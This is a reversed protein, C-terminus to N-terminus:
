WCEAPGRRRRLRLITPLLTIGSGVVVLLLLGGRLPLSDLFCASVFGILVAVLSIRTHMVASQLEPIMKGAIENLIVTDFLARMAWTAAAGAIGFSSTFLWLLLLYPFLEALHTKAVLDPRGTSQLATLPQLAFVNVMWGVALWQMVPTSSIRFDEGLWLDLLDPALLFFGATVPLMSGVLAQTSSTYIHVLRQRDGAFATAMAPFVVAMISQPLMQARSLVEYPTVYYTVATMSLLAGVLFRDLYTMLPGVINSVTLWGGFSLLHVMHDRRPLSPIRLEPRISAAAISFALLALLRSLLLTATAWSLNPTFHLTILPGVFTLIGLPLRIKTITAFRQHAQLIGVLATSVIVVPLGAALICFSAIAEAQLAQNINLLKTVLTHSLLLVVTGGISGMLLLMALATWILSDLGDFRSLGLREAILKTLARGLGLDFLSFYGVGMWIISLLGFREEGMGKILLPIAALAILVPVAMGIFNWIVSHALVRGTTLSQGAQYM